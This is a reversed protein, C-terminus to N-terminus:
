DWYQTDVGIHEAEDLAKVCAVNDVDCDIERDSDCSYIAVSSDDRAPTQMVRPQIPPPVPPKQSLAQPTAKPALGGWWFFCATCLQCRPNFCTCYAIGRAAYCHSRTGKNTFFRWLGKATTAFAGTVVAHLVNITVASSM